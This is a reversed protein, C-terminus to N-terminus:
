RILTVYGSQNRKIGDGMIYDAVWYYVGVAAPKGNYNGDWGIFTSKSQFVLAGWRTFVLLKFEIPNSDQNARFIDNINDGNPTFTNPFVVPNCEDQLINVDLTDVICGQKNFFDFHNLGPSLGTITQGLAYIDKEHKVQIDNPADGAVSFVIKGPLTCVANKVTYIVNPKNLTFDPVTVLMNLDNGNSSAILLNYAGPRLNDFVGTTNVIGNFTYTYDATHTQTVATVSAKGFIDCEPEIQLNSIIIPPCSDQKLSYDREDIVCGKLSLITFHYTGASLGTFTHDFGFVDNGYKIQFQADATGADLKIQGTKICIPSISSITIVPNNITFDPVTFSVSSPAQNGTTTITVTYNGPVLNDFVGTTDSQGTNLTYNYQSGLSTVFINAQGQNFVECEQKLKVSDIQIPPCADQTLTYTKEDILCGNKNLITFQYTGANLGTFTHDFGFVNNGYKIQYLSDAKGADLKIQGAKNCIPNIHSYTIQPNTLSFDPVNFNASVPTESGTSTIKLQYNGPPLNDFVGTTDTQGSNLTYTYQHTHFETVVKIQGQSFADCQRKVQISDVMIPCNQVLRYSKEDAICGKKNLITFQYTGESLNTFVHDFSFIQNNYKIAYLSDSSGADLKIQGKTVCQPTVQTETIIPNNVTFDPITFTTDKQLENLNSRIVVQYNGPALNDFIGTTNTQGSSLVFTRQSNDPNAFFQVRAQNFADCEQTIKLSDLKVKTVAGAENTSGFDYTPTIYGVVGKISKNEMDVQVLENSGSAFVTSVGNITLTTLGFFYVNSIYISTKSPDNLPIKAIGQNSAMYLQNHYFTLDGNSSYPMIGLDVIVPNKPDFSCLDNANQVFYLVGDTDMTLANTYIGSAILKCNSITPTSGLTIDGSYLHGDSTCYFFKSGLVAISFYNSGGCGAVPQTIIGNGTLTVLELSGLYTASFFQQSYGKFSILIFLIFILFKERM